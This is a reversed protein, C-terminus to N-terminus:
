FRWYNPTDQIIWALILGAISIVIVCLGITM